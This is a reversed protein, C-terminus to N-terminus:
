EQLSAVGNNEYILFGEIDDYVRMLEHAMARCETALGNAEEDTVDLLTPVHRRTYIVLQGLERQRPPVATFTFATQRVPTAAPVRGAMVDCLLCPDGNALTFPM